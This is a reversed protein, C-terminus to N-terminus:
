SKRRGVRRRQSAIETEYTSTGVDIPMVNPTTLRYRPPGDNPEFKGYYRIACPSGLATGSETHAAIDDLFEQWALFVAAASTNNWAMAGTLDANGLVYLYQRPHGGRYRFTAPYSILMAANAPISDDGRTGPTNGLWTGEGSSSSTLDTVQVQTLQTPSPCQPAMRTGWRGAIFSAISAAVTNSPATGSYLFHLINAWKRTNTNDTLGEVVVKLMNAIPPLPGLGM